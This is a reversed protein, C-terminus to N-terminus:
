PLRDFSFRSSASIRSFAPRSRASTAVADSSSPMSMPDISRTHWIPDGCRILVSSCRTPRDPWVMEPVGLPRSNGTERSSKISHAASIRDARRPSSSRM